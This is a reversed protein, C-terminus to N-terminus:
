VTWPEPNSDAIRAERLRRTGAAGKVKELRGKPRECDAEDPLRGVLGEGGSGRVIGQIRGGDHDLPKGVDREEM